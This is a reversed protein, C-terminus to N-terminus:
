VYVVFEAVNSMGVQKIYSRIIKYLTIRSVIAIIICIIKVLFLSYHCIKDKGPIASTNPLRGPGVTSSSWLRCGRMIRRLEIDLSFEEDKSVGLTTKTKKMPPHVYWSIEASLLRLWCSSELTSNTISVVLNIFPLVKM